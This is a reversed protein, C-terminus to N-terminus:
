LAGSILTALRQLTARLQENEKVSGRIAAICTDLDGSITATRTTTRSTTTTPTKPPRGPGRKPADGMRSKVNYVLAPTCGVKKAIEVPPM